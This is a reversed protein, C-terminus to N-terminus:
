LVMSTDVFRGGPPTEHRMRLESKANEYSVRELAAVQPDSWPRGTMSCLRALVGSCIAEGHAAVFGNPAHESELSPVEEQIVRVARPGDNLHAEQPPAAPADRPPVWRPSLHLVPPRAGYTAYDIGSKLRQAGVAVARVGTVVGGFVSALPYDLRGREIEVFREATLCKTERCFERFVDRIAKRIMLDTCGPLRYVLNEALESVKEFEPPDQEQQFSNAM